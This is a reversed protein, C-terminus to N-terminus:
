PVLYSALPSGSLDREIADRIEAPLAERWRDKVRANKFVSFPHDSHGSTSRQLFNRTQDTWNLRLSRFLDESVSLPDATLRDYNVLHVRGPHRRALDEYLRTLRMWDDFGWFESPNVKRVAGSRWNTLPDAGPPFEKPNDLWSHIAGRPDRIIHVVELPLPLRLLHPLFQHHRVDKIVLVRPDADKREFSPFLGAARRDAQAMWPDMSAHVAQFFLRWAHEDDDPRMTDRFAWSFLPALRFNVEPASDLIQCLWSTGSRPLGNTWIIRDPPGFLM